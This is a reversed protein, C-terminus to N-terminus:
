NITNDKYEKYLSICAYKYEYVDYPILQYYNDYENIYNQISISDAKTTWHLPSNWLAVIRM